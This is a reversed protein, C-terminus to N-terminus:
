YYWRSTSWPIEGRNFLIVEYNDMLQHFDVKHILNINTFNRPWKLNCVIWSDACTLQVLLSIGLVDLRSLNVKGIDLSSCEPFILTLIMAASAYCGRYWSHIIIRGQKGLPLIEVIYTSVSKHKMYVIWCTFTEPNLESMTEVVMVSDVLFKGIKM